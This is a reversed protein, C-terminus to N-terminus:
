SSPPPAPATSPCTQFILCVPWREKPEKPTESAVSMGRVEDWRIFEVRGETVNHVLIGRDFSRLLQVEKSAGAEKLEIRFLDKTGLLDIQGEGVGLSFAGALVLPVALIVSRTTRSFTEPWRRMYATAGRLLVVVLGIPIGFLPDVVSLYLVIGFIIVKAVSGAVRHKRPPAIISLAAGSGLGGGVIFLTRPLWLISNALYDSASVLAQFHIGVVAFYGWEHVVSTILVAFSTVAIFTPFREIFQNM